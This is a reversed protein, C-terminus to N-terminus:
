SPRLDAVTGVFHPFVGGCHPPEGTFFFLGSWSLVPSFPSLHYDFFTGSSPSFGRLLSGTAQFARVTQLPSLTRGRGEEVELCDIREDPAGPVPLPPRSFRPPSIQNFFFAQSASRPSSPYGVKM